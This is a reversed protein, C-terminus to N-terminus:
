GLDVDVSDALDRKRAELTEVFETWGEGVSTLSIGVGAVGGEAGQHVVVGEVTFTRGKRVKIEFRLTTGLPKPAAMRVFLGRRSINITESEALDWMDEFEMRVQVALAIRPFRRFGNRARDGEDGAIRRKEDDSLRQWEGAASRLSALDRGNLAATIQALLPAAANVQRMRQALDSLADLLSQREGPYAEVDSVEPGRDM